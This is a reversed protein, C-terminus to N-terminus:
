ESGAPQASDSGLPRRAAGPVPAGTRRALFREFERGRLERRPADIPGRLDLGLSPAEAHGTLRFRSELDLRWRVLDIQARATARAAALEARADTAVVVGAAVGFSTEASEFGTAGGGLAAALLGESRVAGPRGLERDLAGLDIGAVSGRRATVLGEGALTSIMEEQSRGLATFRGALDFRGSAVDIGAAGGLAAALDADSLDVELGLRPTVGADVRAVLRLEGGFLKGNLPDIAVVGDSLALELRPEDVRYAGWSIAQSALRITGDFVRAIGLDVPARSWRGAGPGAASAGAQREAPAGRPLLLGVPIEGGRLDAEVRPREGALSLAIDGSLRAPGIAAELGRVRLQGASAELAADVSVGLDPAAPRYDVGVDALLAALDPHSLAVRLDYEFGEAAVISGAAAVRAGAANAVLDVTLREAAGKVAGSMDVRGKLAPDLTPDLRRLFAALDPSVIDVALDVAPVAAEREDDAGTIRGSVVARLADTELTADLALSRATGALSGRASVEGLRAIAPQEIDLARALRAPNAVELDFETAVVPEAAFGRARGSVSAAVGAAAIALERVTLEGGRLSLDAALGQVALGDYTLSDAALKLNADFRELVALPPAGDAGAAAAADTDLRASGEPSAAPRPLYTDVNLRDLMADISFSPRAGLAYAAGGRLRTSDLTLDADHLQVVERTLRLRSSLALKRLRDVPIGGSDIALWDLLARMNDSDVRVRGEFLPARDIATLVGDIALDSGGPLAGVLRRIRVAGNELTADLAARRVVHDRYHLAEVAVAVSAALDEPLAFAPVWATGGIAAAGSGDRGAERALAALLGDGDLRNVSLAVALETRVGFAASVAGSAASEGLEFVLDDLAFDRTGTDISASLSYPGDLGALRDRPIGGIRAVVDLLEGFRGGAVQLSGRARAGGEPAAVRGRFGLTADSGGIRMEGALAVMGDGARADATLAFGIATGRLQFEGTGSFPGRLSPASFAADIADLRIADGGPADRYSVTGGVIAIRDIRVAPSPRPWDIAFGFNTVGDASREITLAPRVLTVGRIRIEGILLPLLALDIELSDLTAVDAGPDDDPSALRIGRVVAGPSPLIRGEIDGAIALKHGTAAEVKRAIDPKFDDLDVLLPALLAIAPVIVIVAVLGAALRKM